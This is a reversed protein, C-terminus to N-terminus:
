PYSPKETSAGYCAHRWISTFLNYLLPLDNYHPLSGPEDPCGVRCTQAEGETHFRQATCLGNCLIRLLGVTLGPRAVRSVLKMHLLIEVIRFRSIPGLVRCARLSIPGAFDQRFFEDRFIAANQKKDQPFDDLKGNRDLYCVINFAEATSCAMSLALFEKEWNSTLALKPAFDYGRVAQIKELGQSVTNSCAATRDRAALSFSHIGVLDCVSGVGSPSTPIANYSRCYYM